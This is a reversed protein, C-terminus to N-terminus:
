SPDKQIPELLSPADDLWSTLPKISEYHSLDVKIPTVSVKGASIAYFDSGPGADQEAGPPGVWFIDNGRPDKQKITPEASHRTGLRTIEIGQLIHFPLDPINVNLVIQGTICLKPLQSVLYKAVKAATDYYRFESGVLSVAIAPLGLFRGETAAAVTGSYLIDDGLNAGANIGAIVLDPQEDLLGTLALHVCDTPTGEVSIFGNDLKKIRIPNHLTLSNSAGSRNRDPAIVHVEGFSRMAEALVELGRAYVGDDNSVLIRM